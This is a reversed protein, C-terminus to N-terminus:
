RGEGPNLRVPRTAGDDSRGWFADWPSRGRRVERRLYQLSALVEDMAPGILLISIVASVLCLTCWAGYAVPQAIVLGISVAGLPGVALGFLIVVWPMSRWRDRRGVLGVVADVAYGAAGLAADPVPLVESLGSNLITRSGDGFFPEWVSGVIDLQYLALFASIVFGVGALAVLPIRQGWSSPNSTWGPPASPEPM